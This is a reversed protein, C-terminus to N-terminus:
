ENALSPDNFCSWMTKVPSDQQRQVMKKLRELEKKSAASEARLKDIEVKNTELEVQCEKLQRRWQRTERKSTELEDGTKENTQRL